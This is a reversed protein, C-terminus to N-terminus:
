DLHDLIYEWRKSQLKNSVKILPPSELAMLQTLRETFFNLEIKGFAFTVLNSCEITYEGYQNM